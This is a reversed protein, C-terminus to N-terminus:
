EAIYLKIRSKWQPSQKWDHTNAYGQVGKYDYIYAILTYSLTSARVVNVEGQM